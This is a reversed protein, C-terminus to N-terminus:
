FFLDFGVAFLAGDVLLHSLWPAYLSGSKQYLWAWAVGGVGVCLTFLTIALAQEPGLFIALAFLHPMMFGLSSLAM